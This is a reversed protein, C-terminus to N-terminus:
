DDVIGGLIIIVLWVFALALGAALIISM